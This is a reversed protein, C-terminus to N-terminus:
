ICHSLRCQSLFYFHVCFVCCWSHLPCIREVHVAITV